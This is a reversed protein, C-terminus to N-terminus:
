IYKSFKTLTPVPSIKLTATEAIASRRTSRVTTSPRVTYRRSWVPISPSQGTVSVLLFLSLRGAVRSPDSTRCFVISTRQSAKARSSNTTSSNSCRTSSTWRASLMSCSRTITASRGLAVTGAFPRERVAAAAGTEAGLFKPNQGVKRLTQSAARFLLDYCVRQNLYFLKHLTSPITFVMHFYRCVPLSSKLKDIWILQKVYQSKNCHRNRCSIYAIHQHGCQNCGELHGGMAATRCQTIARFANFQDACLNHKDTFQSGYENLM